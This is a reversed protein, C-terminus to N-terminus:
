NRKAYATIKSRNGILHPYKVRLFGKRSIGNPNAKKYAAWKKLAESRDTMLGKRYYKKAM